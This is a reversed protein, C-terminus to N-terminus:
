QGYGLARLQERESEDLEAPAGHGLPGLERALAERLAATVEPKVARLDTQEEPDAERDFLGVIEGEASEILKYRGRRIARGSPGWMNGLSVVAREDGAAGDLQPVLSTGTFSAPRELSALEVLTPAVDILRVTADNRAPTAGAPRRVVLPVQLLEDYLTHGHEFGGHDEFEEGHDATIVVVAEDLLGREELGDLLAGVEADMYAVEGDYLQELRSITDSSLELEGRRFAVIENVHGFVHSRASADEPSAHLARYPAPPDYTLHADFYHVLLFFPAGKRRDIWSLATDTTVEAIRLLQNDRPSVHDVTDFGRMAGFRPGLFLVNTVAGTAYGAGGFVEPLTEGEATMTTFRGKAGGAGHRDPTRSTLLSAVSPLTWPAHAYAHDFVTAGEAFADIRPTLSPKRGYVGLRDARLTDLLVVIVNPPPPDPTDPTDPTDLSPGCGLVLMVTAAGALVCGLRTGTVHARTRQPLRCATM